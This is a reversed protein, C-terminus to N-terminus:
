YKFEDKKYKKLFEKAKICDNNIAEKLLDLNEFKQNERIFALLYVKIEKNYIDKDFDFIYTELYSKNDNFSKPIGIFSVSNYLRNNILTLSAYSGSKIKINKDDEINATPFFMKKAIGKGHVVINEYYFNSLMLQNASEIMGNELLHCIHSTSYKEKEKLSIVEIDFYEKLLNLNGSKNKGFVFDSGVIVKKFNIKKLVQEIFDIPKLNFKLIDFVYLIKPNLKKFNNIRQNLNYLNYKKSPNNEFLMVGFNKINKFMTLHGYHLCDFHGLVLYDITNQKNEFPLNINVVNM